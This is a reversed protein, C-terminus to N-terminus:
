KCISEFYKKCDEFKDFSRVFSLEHEWKIQHRKSANTCISYKYEMKPHAYYPERTNLYIGKYSSVYGYVTKNRFKFTVIDNFKFKNKVETM